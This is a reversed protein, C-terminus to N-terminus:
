AYAGGTLNRRIEPLQAVKVHLLHAADRHLTRNEAVAGLLAEAFTRSNRVLTTAYFDGGGSRRRPIAPVSKLVGLQHRFEADSVIGLEQARRLAVIKSVKFYRATVDVNKEISRSSSWYREFAGPPLLLDAAVRNCFREVTPISSTDSLEQDPELATVGSEGLALHALEHALTFVQASRADRSNIFIVPAVPDSIVLGRFEQVDLPRRTNNEVVGSRFVLVGATEVRAVFLRLFQDPGTAQTRLGDDVQFISSLSAGVQRPDDTLSNQGVFSLRPAHEAELYERYWQQKRLLDNTLDLLDVSVKAISKGSVTRLDPVPLREQPPSELYLYGLPVNLAQSLDLAQKFTPRAKGQEWEAIRGPTAHLRRATEVVSIRARARAWQVLAPTILAEM